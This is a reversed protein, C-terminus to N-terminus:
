ALRELLNVAIKQGSMLIDTIKRGSFTSGIYSNIGQNWLNIKGGGKAIFIIFIFRQFWPLSNLSRDDIVPSPHLHFFLPTLYKQAHFFPPAFM